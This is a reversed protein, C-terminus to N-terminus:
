AIKNKEDAGIDTRTLQKELDDKAQQKITEENPVVGFRGHRQDGQNRNQM